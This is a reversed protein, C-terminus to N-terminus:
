RIDESSVLGDSGMPVTAARVVGGGALQRGAEVTAAAVQIVGIVALQAPWYPMQHRHDVKRWLFVNLRLAARGIVL